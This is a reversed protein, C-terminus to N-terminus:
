WIAEFIDSTLAPDNGVHDLDEIKLPEADWCAMMLADAKDPSKARLRKRYDEKSEVVIRGGRDLFWKLSTLQGMLEEDDDIDIMGYEFLERLHWYAQSRLNAFDKDQPATAGSVFGYVDFGMERLRDVVGAGVGTDDVVLPKPRRSLTAAMKNAVQMTDMTAAEWVHRVKGGQYEYCMTFDEGYRAIDLGYQSEYGDAKLERDVAAEWWSMQVLADESQDPFRGRVKSQYLPSAEGWRQRREEVWQPSLLDDYVRPDPLYEGTFNPTKLGDITIKKWGSNPKCIVAFHSTPTDPNGIALCRAFENTVVSDVADYIMKPVGNGEDIVVLLYRQHIGQFADPKYDSPKRGYAVLEEGHAPGLRWKADLTLRGPLSATRHARGIERWLIAEVQTTTPATTIAFATGPPHVDIWWCVLRAALYSKGSDHCSPVVTYRNHVVSRAIARQKSWLFESCRERVWAIPNNKHPHVWLGQHQKFDQVVAETGALDLM